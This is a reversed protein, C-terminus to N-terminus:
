NFKGGIQAINDGCKALPLVPMMGVNKYISGPV